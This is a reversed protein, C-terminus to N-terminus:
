VYVKKEIINILRDLQEQFKQTQQKNQQIVEKLLEIGADNIAINNGHVNVGTMSSDSINSTTQQNDGRLLWEMSLDEFHTAFLEITTLDLNRTGNLKNNLTMEHVGLINAVERNTLKKKRLFSVLRETIPTKM